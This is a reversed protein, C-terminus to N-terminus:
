FAGQIGPQPRPEELFIYQRNLEDRIVKCPFVYNRKLADTDSHDVVITGDMCYNNIILDKMQRNEIILDEYYTRIISSVSSTIQNKAKYFALKPQKKALYLTCLAFSFLTIIMSIILIKDLEEKSIWEFLKKKM